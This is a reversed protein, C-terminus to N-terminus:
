VSSKNSVKTPAMQFFSFCYFLRVRVVGVLENNFVCVVVVLVVVTALLNTNSNMKEM